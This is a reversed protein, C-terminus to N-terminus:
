FLAWDPIPAGKNDWDPISTKSWGNILNICYLRPCSQLMTKSCISWITKIQLSLETFKTPDLKFNPKVKDLRRWLIDLFLSLTIQFSKFSFILSIKLLLLSKKLIEVEMKWGGEFLSPFFLHSNTTVRSSIM